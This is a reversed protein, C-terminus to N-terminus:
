AERGQRASLATVTTIWGPASWRRRTFVRGIRRITRWDREDYALRARADLLPPDLSLWPRVACHARTYEARRGRRLLSELERAAAHPDRAGRAAAADRAVEELVLERRSGEVLGWRVSRAALAARAAPDGAVSELAREIPQVLDRLAEYAHIRVEEDPDDLRQTLRETHEAIREDSRAAHPGEVRAGAADAPAGRVLRSALSAARSVLASRAGVDMGQAVTDFGRVDVSRALSPPAGFMARVRAVQEEALRTTEANIRAEDGDGAGRRRAPDAELLAVGAYLVGVVPLGLAVLATLRREVVSQGACRAAGAVCAASAVHLALAPAVQPAAAHLTLAAGTAACLGACWLAGALWRDRRRPPGAREVGAPQQPLAPSPAANM